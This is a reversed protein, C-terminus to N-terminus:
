HKLFVSALFLIGRKTFFVSKTSASLHWSKREKWHVEGKDPFSCRYPHSPFGKWILCGKAEGCLSVANVRIVAPCLSPNKSTAQPSWHMLTNGLLLVSRTLHSAGYRTVGIWVLLRKWLRSLQGVSAGRRKLFARSRGGLIPHFHGKVDVPLCLLGSFILTQIAIDNLSSICIKTKLAFVCHLFGYSSGVDVIM